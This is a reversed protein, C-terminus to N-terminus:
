MHKSGQFVKPWTVGKNKAGLLYDSSETLMQLSSLFLIRSMFSVKDGLNLCLSWGANTM